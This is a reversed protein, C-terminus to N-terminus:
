ERANRLNRELDRLEEFTWFSRNKIQQALADSRAAAGAETLHAGVDAFHERVTYAGLVPDKLVPIIEAVERVIGLNLRQFRRHHEPTAYRWVLSYVVQVRNTEGWTKTAQLLRRADASLGVDPPAEDIIETREKTQQWGSPRVDQRQYRYLPKRLAIKGLLTFCHYAGPRLSLLDEAWHVPEGTIRTAHILSPQGLSFGLQAAVDASSFPAALLVPDLELVLTDGPRAAQAALAVLFPPEMGAHMGFNVTPLGHRELMRQGDVSFATTSCGCVVVLSSHERRLQETWAQKIQATYRYFRIEPNLWFTYGAAALLSAM